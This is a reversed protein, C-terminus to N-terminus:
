EAAVRAQLSIRSLIARLQAAKLPKRLLVLGLQRIERQVEPTRDATIIVVPLDRGVAASIAKVAEAGTGTNLHYDALIVSPPAEMEALRALAQETSAAM